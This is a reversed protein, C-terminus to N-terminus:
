KQVRGRHVVLMFKHRRSGEDLTEGPNMMKMAITRTIELGPM